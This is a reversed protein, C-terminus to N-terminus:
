RADAAADGREPAAVGPVSKANPIPAASQEADEITADEIVRTPLLAALGALFALLLFLHIRLGLFGSAMGLVWIIVSLFAAVCFM